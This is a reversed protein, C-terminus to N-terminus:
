KLTSRNSLGDFKSRNSYGISESKVRFWNRFDISPLNLNESHYKTGTIWSQFHHQSVPVQLKSSPRM